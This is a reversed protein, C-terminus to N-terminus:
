RRAPVSGLRRSRARDSAPASRHGSRTPAGSLRRGAPSGAQDTGIRDLRALAADALEVLRAIQADDREVWRVRPEGLPNFGEHQEWVLLTRRAGM